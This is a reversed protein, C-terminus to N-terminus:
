IVLIFCLFIGWVIRNTWYIFADRLYSHHKKNCHNNIDKMFSQEESLSFWSNQLQFLFWKSVESALILLKNKRDKLKSNKIARRFRIIHIASFKISPCSWNNWEIVLKLKLNLSIIQFFREKWSFSLSIMQLIAIGVM